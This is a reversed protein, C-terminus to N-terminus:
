NYRPASHHCANYFTLSRMVIGRRLCDRVAGIGARDARRSQISCARPGSYSLTELNAIMSPLLALGVTDALGVVPGTEITEVISLSKPPELAFPLPQQLSAWVTFHPQQPLAWNGNVAILEGALNIPPLHAHRGM